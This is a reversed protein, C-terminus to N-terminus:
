GAVAILHMTAVARQHVCWWGETDGGLLGVSTDVDRQPPVRCVVVVRRAGPARIRANSM